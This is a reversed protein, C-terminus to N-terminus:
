SADGGETEETDPWAFDEGCLAVFRLTTEGIRIMDGDTLPETSLVPMDNLRVLNAKGGHGLYFQRQEDDYAVAAHNDRSISTDGYDLRIPQGEGRGIKSAGSFLTFCAGRGPGKVVMIWGVPFKSPANSAGTANEFPDPNADEPRNFGLLRTKVRGARRRPQPAEAADPMAAAAAPIAAAPAGQPGLDWIKKPSSSGNIQAAEAQTSSALIENTREMLRDEAPTDFFLSADAPATDEPEALAPHLPEEVPADFAAAPEPIESPQVPAPQPEPAVFVPEPQPEPAAMPAPEPAPMPEPEPEPQFMTEPEPQPAPEPEVMPEPEPEVKDEPEFFSRLAPDLAEEVPEPAPAPEPTDEKIARHPEAFARELPDIRDSNQAAFHDVYELDDRGEAEGAHRAGNAEDYSLPDIEEDADFSADDLTIREAKAARVADLSASAEDRFSDLSAGDDADEGEVPVRYPLITPEPAGDDTGFANAHLDQASLDEAAASGEPLGHADRAHKKKAIMEQLFRM